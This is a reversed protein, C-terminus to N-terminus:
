DNDNSVRFTVGGLPDGSLSSTKIIKAKGQAHNTATIVANEVAGSGEGIVISIPNQGAPYGSFGVLSSGAAMSSESLSYTGYGLEDFTASEGDRITKSINVNDPGGTLTFTFTKSPDTITGNDVDKTVVISGESVLLDNKFSVTGIAGAAVTVTKYNPDGVYGDPAKTEKVYYTGPSIWGSTVTGNSGTTMIFDGDNDTFDTDDSVRFQADELYIKGTSDTKIIKAKGLQEQNTVVISIDGSTGKSLTFSSPSISIKEFGQPISTETVTYNGYPLGSVTITGSSAKVPVTRSVSNEPGGTIVVTFEPDSMSPGQLVKKLKVSGVFGTIELQNSVPTWGDFPGVFSQSQNRGGQPDYFYADFSVHQNGAATFTFSADQPLNNVNIRYKGDAGRVATSVTTGPYSTALAKSFSGNLDVPTGEINNQDAWYVLQLNVKNGVYSVVNVEVEVSAIIAAPAIAPRAILWDRLNEIRQKVTNNVSSAVTVAPNGNAYHWVALQTATVVEKLDLGSIGSAAGVEAVTKYPYSNWMISRIHQAATSSYYNADELIKRAYLHGNRATTELDVCYTEATESVGDTRTVEFTTTNFNSGGYRVQYGSNKTATYKFVYSDNALAIPTSSLITLLFVLFCVGKRFVRRVSRKM